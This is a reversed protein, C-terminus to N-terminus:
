NATKRLNVLPLSDALLCTPCSTMGNPLDTVGYASRGRARGRAHGEAVNTKM